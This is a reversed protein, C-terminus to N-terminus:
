SSDIENKYFRGFEPVYQTGRFGVSKVRYFVYLELWIMKAFSTLDMFRDFKNEFGM